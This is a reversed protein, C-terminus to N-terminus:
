LGEVKLLMQCVEDSGVSSDDRGVHTDCLEPSSPYVRLASVLVTKLQINLMGSQFQTSCSVASRHVEILQELNHHM